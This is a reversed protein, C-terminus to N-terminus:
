MPYVSGPSPPPAAPNDRASDGVGDGAVRELKRLFPAVKRGWAPLPDAASGVLAVAAHARADIAPLSYWALTAVACLQGPPLAMRVGDLGIESRM